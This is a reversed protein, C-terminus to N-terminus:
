IIKVQTTKLNMKKGVLSALIRNLRSFTETKAHKEQGHYTRVSYCKKM